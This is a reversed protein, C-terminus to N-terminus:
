KELYLGDCLDVRTGESGGAWEEVVTRIWATVLYRSVSIM